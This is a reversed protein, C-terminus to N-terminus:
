GSYSGHVVGYVAVFCQCYENVKEIDADVNVSRISEIFMETLTHKLNAEPIATLGKYTEYYDINHISGEKITPRQNLNEQNNQMVFPKLFSLSGM